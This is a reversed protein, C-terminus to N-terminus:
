GRSTLRRELLADGLELSADLAELGDRRRPAFCTQDCLSQLDDLVRAREAL